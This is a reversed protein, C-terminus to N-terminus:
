YNPQLVNKKFSLSRNKNDKWNTSLKTLIYILEPQFMIHSRVNVLM